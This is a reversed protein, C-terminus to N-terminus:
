VGKVFHGRSKRSMGPGVSFVTQQHHASQTIFWAPSTRFCCNAAVDNTIPRTGKIRFSIAHGSRLSTETGEGSFTTTSTKTLASPSMGTTFTSALNTRRCCLNEFFLRPTAVSTSKVNLKSPAYAVNITISNKEFLDDSPHGYGSKMHVHNIIAKIGAAMRVYM